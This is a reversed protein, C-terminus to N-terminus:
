LQQRTPRNPIEAYSAFLIAPRLSHHIALNRVVFLALIQHIDVLVLTADDEEEENHEYKLILTITHQWCILCSMSM